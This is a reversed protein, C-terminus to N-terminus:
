LGPEPPLEAARIDTLAGPSTTQLFEAAMAGNAGAMAVLGAMATGSWVSMTTKMSM